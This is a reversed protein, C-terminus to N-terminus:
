AARPVDYVRAPMGAKMGRSELSAGLVSRCLRASKTSGPSALAALFFPGQTKGNPTM